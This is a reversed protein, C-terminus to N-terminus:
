SPGSCPVVSTLVGVVLTSGALISGLAATWLPIARRGSSGLAWLGGVLMAVGGLIWVVGCSAYATSIRSWELVVRHGMRIVSFGFVAVVGGLLPASLSAPSNSTAPGM